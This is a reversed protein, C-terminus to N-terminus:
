LRHSQHFIYSHLDSSIFSFSHLHIFIFSSSHLHIFIFSSSHIIFSSSHLHIFIFSSSHLHIFIFSSSHHYWDEQCLPPRASVKEFFTSTNSTLDGKRLSNWWVKCKCLTSPEVVKCCDNVAQSIERGSPNWSFATLDMVQDSEGGKSWCKTTIKILHM